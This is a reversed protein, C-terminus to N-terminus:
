PLAVRRAKLCGWNAFLLALVHDRKVRAQIGVTVRGARLTWPSLDRSPHLIYSALAGGNRSAELLREDAGRDCLVGVGDENAGVAM